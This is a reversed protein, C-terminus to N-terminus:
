LKLRRWARRAQRHVGHRDGHWIRHLSRGCLRHERYLHARRAAGNRRPAIMPAPNTCEYSTDRYDNSQDDGSYYGGATKFRVKGDADGEYSYAFEYWNGDGRDDYSHEPVYHSTSMLVWEGTQAPSLDSVDLDDGTAVTKKPLGGLLGGLGNCATLSPASALLLLVALLKKLTAHKM